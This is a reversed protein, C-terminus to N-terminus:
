QYGIFIGFAHFFVPLHHLAFCSVGASCVALLPVGFPTVSVNAKKEIAAKPAQNVTSRYAPTGSRKVAQRHDTTREPSVLGQMFSFHTM